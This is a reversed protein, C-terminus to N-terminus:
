RARGPRVTYRTDFFTTRGAGARRHAEREIRDFTEAGSEGAPPYVNVNYHNVSGPISSAGAGASTTVGAARFAFPRSRFWQPLGRLAHGMETLGDTVKSVQDLFQQLTTATLKSLDIGMIKALEQLQAPDIGAKLLQEEILKAWDLGVPTPRGGVQRMIVDPKIEGVVIRNLIDQVATGAQGAFGTLGAAAVKGKIFEATAGLAKTNRQIARELDSVGGLLSRFGDVLKGAIFGIGSSALNAGLGRFDTAGTFLGKIADDVGGRFDRVSDKFSSFGQRLVAMDPEATSPSLRTSLGTLGVKSAGLPAIGPVLPTDRVTALILQARKAFAILQAGRVKQHEEEAAVAEAHAKDRIRKQADYGAQAIDLHRELGAVTAANMKEFVAAQGEALLSQAEKLKALGGEMTEWKALAGGRADLRPVGSSSLLDDVVKQQAEVDLLGKGAVGLKREERLDRLRQTAEEQAKKAERSTRTILEWGKAIAALGLLVGATAAGGLALTGFQAIVQGLPGPLGIAQTVLGAMASRTANIAPTAKNAAAGTSAFAASTKRGSQEVKTTYDAVAAAGQKTAKTIGSIDGDLETVLRDLRM